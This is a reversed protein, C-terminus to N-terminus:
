PITGLNQGYYKLRYLEKIYFITQLKCM